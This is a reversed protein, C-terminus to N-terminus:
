IKIHYKQEIYRFYNDKLTTHDVFYMWFAYVNKFYKTCLDLLAVSDKGGSFGVIIKQTVCAGEKLVSYLDM